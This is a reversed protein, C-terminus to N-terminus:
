KAGTAPTRPEANKVWTDLWTVMEWLTHGVAERSRYGHDEYPLQVWRVTGGLGKMAEYLRKSQIPYTGANSDDEGHIMLLPEDILHANSFPSMTMYVSQAEWFTRQEGQFGFPTLSRNYAGSRAVGTRFLNSHALLNATTFAGYSHGGIAIRDRDAVGMAVVHEVAAEASAVLQDVYSDNPETDGEGVIPMTPGSLVAYGQTLLFLVSSGGPRTFTNEATTVQSATKKSKHERPYAWMVMPLPGQSAVDYGAPLYLTASLQVGDAREYTVVEKSVGAFQPAWDEFTTLAKARKNKRGGIMYNPPGDQSQRRTVLKKGDADLARVLTEYHPDAAAWLRTATGSGLDVRDVFPYV